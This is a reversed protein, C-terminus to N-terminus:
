SSRCRGALSGSETIRAFIEGTARAGSSGVSGHRRSPRRRREDFAMIPATVSQALPIMSFMNPVTGLEIANGDYASLEVLRAAHASDGRPASRVGARRVEGRERPQRVAPGHHRRFGRGVPLEEPLDHGTAVLENASAIRADGYVDLWRHCWTAINDLAYLSFLDAAMPTVFRDSGVLASRNILESPSPSLDVVIIDPARTSTGAYRRLWATRRAGGAQGARFDTWSAGLIDESSRCSRIVQFLTSASGDAAVCPCRRLGEVTSDGARIPQLPNLITKANRGGRRGRLHRDM